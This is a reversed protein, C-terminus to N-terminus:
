ISFRKQSRDKLNNNLENDNPVTHTEKLIKNEYRIYGLIKQKADEADYAILINDTNENFGRLLDRRKSDIINEAGERGNAQAYLRAVPITDATTFVKYKVRQQTM